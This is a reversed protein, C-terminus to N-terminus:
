LWPLEREQVSVQKRAIFGLTVDPAAGTKEVLPPTCQIFMNVVPEDEPCGEHLCCLTHESWLLIKLGLPCNTQIHKPLTDMRPNVHCSPYCKQLYCTLVLLTSGPFNACFYTFIKHSNLLILLNHLYRLWSTKSFKRM